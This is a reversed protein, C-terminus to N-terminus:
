IVNELRMRIERSFDRTKSACILLYHCSVSRYILQHIDKLFFTQFKIRYYANNPAIIFIVILNNRNRLFINM